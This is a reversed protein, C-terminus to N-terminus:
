IACTGNFDKGCEGKYEPHRKLWLAAYPCTGVPKLGEELAYDFAAKVLASAIGRGEIPAPVITHRVDLEGESLRYTLHAEQGDVITEFVGRRKDHTIEM